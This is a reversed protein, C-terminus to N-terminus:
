TKNKQDKIKFRKLNFFVVSRFSLNREPRNGKFHLNDSSRLIAKFVSLLAAVLTGFNESFFPFLFVCKQDLGFNELVHM